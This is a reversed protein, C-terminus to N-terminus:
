GHAGRLPRQVAEQVVTAILIGHRSWVDAFALGRGDVASPSRQVFLMWEDARFPRHYWIAHDLSTLYVKSPEERFPRPKEVPIATSPALFLDSAYALACAHLLPRDHPLREASRIWLRQETTGPLPPQAAPPVYRMELARFYRSQAHDEPAAAAWLEFLDPTEAPPPTEPMRPQRDWTTEPRKFSASLTFITEGGQVAKVERAAYSGGDRLREVQYVIPHAPDGPRLFYGHLSHVSRGEGVTRGAATLAQAAVQGGFARMPLGEHCWGRFLDRDVQELALFGVLGTDHSPVTELM